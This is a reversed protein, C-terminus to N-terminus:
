MIPVAGQMGGMDQAGQVVAEGQMQNLKQQLAEVLKSKTPLYKDPISEIYLLADPILGKAFLNDMTQLQMLESWYAAEGIDVRLRLARFLLPTFEIDVLQEENRDMGTMPDTVSVNLQVQRSGYNVFILNAFVRIIDEVFPYFAMRQLQLPAATSQQVAVIASTNDPRINGLVVDNVGIFDRTMTITRDVIDKLESSMDPAKFATAVNDVGTGGLVAISEGPRNSWGKPLRKADYFVKPFALMREHWIAGAWLRNIAIQNPVLGTIVANGHYSEKIQEWNMWAIPYRSLATDTPERLTLKSTCETFWINGTRADRWFKKLVTVTSSGLPADSQRNYQADDASISQWEEVGARWAQLQVERVDRHQELIIFPQEQVTQIIPNGFLCSTNALLEVAICEEDANWYAYLCADGDVAADRICSRLKSLLSTQEMIADMEETLYKEVARKNLSDDGQLQVNVGINDSAIMSILYMVARRLFNLVPKDIDPAKVGYWQDGSVMRENLKVQEYLGHRGLQRNYQMCAEYESWIESPQTKTKFVSPLEKSQM